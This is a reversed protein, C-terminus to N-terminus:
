DRRLSTFVLRYEEVARVISESAAVTDLRIAASAGRSTALANADRWLTEGISRGTRRDVFLMAECFGDTETLWPVAVDEFAAVADDVRGPETDLRTLRVGGGPHPRAARVFLGVQYREVSATALALKAAQERISGVTRESERLADGSV